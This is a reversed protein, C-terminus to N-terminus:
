VETSPGLRALDRIAESQWRLADSQARMLNIAGEDAQNIAGEDPESSLQSARITPELRCPRLSSVSFM